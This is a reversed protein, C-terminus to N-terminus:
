NTILLLNFCAGDLFMTEIEQRLEKESQNALQDLTLKVAIKTDVQMLKTVNLMYQNIISPNISNPSIKRHGVLSHPFSYLFRQMLGREKFTPPVDRVVESQVFLGIILCPEELIISERSIRDISTYDCSHGNLYIEINPKGIM